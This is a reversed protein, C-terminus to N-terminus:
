WAVYEAAPRRCEPLRRAASAAASRPSPAATARFNPKGSTGAFAPVWLLLFQIGALAPILPALPSSEHVFIKEGVDRGIQPDAAFPAFRGVAAAEVHDIRGGFALDSGHGAGRHVVGLGRDIRGVGGEFAPGVALRALAALDQALAVLQDHAVGLAEGFQDRQLVALRQRIRAALDSIGGFEEAPIGFLGHAIDAFDRARGGGAGADERMVLRGADGHKTVGHFKGAAMAVRLIPGASAAPQGTTSFGADSVGSVM